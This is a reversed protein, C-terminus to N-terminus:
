SSQGDRGSGHKDIRPLIANRCLFFLWTSWVIKISSHLKHHDLPSQLQKDQSEPEMYKGDLRYMLWDIMHIAQEQYEGDSGSQGAEKTRGTHPDGAM